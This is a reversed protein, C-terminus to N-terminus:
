QFCQERVDADGENMPDVLNEDHSGDDHHSGDDEVDEKAFDGQSYTIVALNNLSQALDPHGEPYRARPYLGERMELVEAFAKMAEAVKGAQYLGIARMNLRSAEETKGFREWTAADPPGAAWTASVCALLTMTGVLRTM